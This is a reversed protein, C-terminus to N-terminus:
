SGTYINILNAYLYVKYKYIKSRMAYSSWLFTAFNIFATTM